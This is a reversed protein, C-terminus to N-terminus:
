GHHGGGHPAPQDTKMLLDRTIKDFSVVIGGHAQAFADADARGSFPVLESGGMDAGKTSGVVYHAKRADVWAGAEPKAWNSARAMDNVYIAAFNKGAGDDVLLWTFTDRVSSFWLPADQSRVFVQGKPGTHESLSMRCVTGIANPGPEQPPPLAAVKDEGCASVALAVLASAILNRLRM